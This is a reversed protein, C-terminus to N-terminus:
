EDFNEYYLEVTVKYTYRGKPPVRSALHNKAPKTKNEDWRGMTFTATTENVMAVHDDSDDIDIDKCNLLADIMQNAIKEVDNKM